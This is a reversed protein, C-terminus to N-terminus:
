VFIHGEADTGAPSPRAGDGVRGASVAAALSDLADHNALYTARHDDLAVSCAEVADLNFARRARAGDTSKYGERYCGLWGFTAAPYVESVVTDADTGQMPAVAVGDADVLRGLVDRGGHFTMSRVRNTYPCLAGRRADTERRVDRSGTVREATERCAASFASPDAPGDDGAVWELFGRWTGGCLEDLVAQPLSFPFDLGVTTVDDDTVREVLGAHASERGRGWEDTARYCRDVRLGASTRTAETVWLSDGAESAGSFDVGLVGSGM